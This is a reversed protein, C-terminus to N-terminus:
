SKGGMFSNVSKTVGKVTNDFWSPQSKPAISKQAETEAEAGMTVDTLDAIAKRIPADTSCEVSAIDDCMMDLSYVVGYRTFTATWGDEMRSIQVNEVVGQVKAFPKATISGKDGQVLSRNGYAAFHVGKPQPLDIAYADGFSMLRAQSTNIVGGERPMVVPLRTRDLEKKSLRSPLSNASRATKMNDRAKIVTQWQVTSPPLAKRQLVNKPALMPTFVAKTDVRSISKKPLIATTSSSSGTTKETETDTPKLESSTEQQQINAAKAKEAAAADYTTATQTQGSATNILGFTFASGAIILGTGGILLKYKLSEKRKESM